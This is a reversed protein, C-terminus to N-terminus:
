EELNRKLKDRTEMLIKGLLNQGNGNVTGWTRDGWTNGEELYADGTQILKEALETNQSFKAFVINRMENVKVDEWDHRLNVKRGTRKAKSPNMSTFQKREEESMCKQAQYAAESNQYTLGKYTVISNYFNSLFEYEGCFSQIKNM